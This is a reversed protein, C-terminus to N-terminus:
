WPFVRFAQRGVMSDVNNYYFVKEAVDLKYLVNDFRVTAVKGRLCWSRVNRCGEEKYFPDCKCEATCTYEFARSM